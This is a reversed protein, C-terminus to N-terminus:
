PTRRNKRTMPLTAAEIIFPMPFRQQRDFVGTDWAATDMQKRYGASLV